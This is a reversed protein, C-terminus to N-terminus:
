DIIAKKCNPFPFVLEVGTQDSDANILVISTKIDTIRDGKPILRDLKPCNAYKGPYASTTGYLNGKQGKLIRITFRGKEDINARSSPNYKDANPDGDAMFEVATYEAIDSNPIKGDSVRVAGSVTITEATAPPVVILDDIVTGPGFQLEAADERNKAKPYFFAGFPTSATVKDDDNLLLVYNGAPIQKIEFSGDSETCDFPLAFSKESVQTPVLRMCVDKLPKGNTDFFKGRLANDIIFNINRETHSKAKIEFDPRDDPVEYGSRFGEIREPRIKYKGPPLDYIEYVGNKDTKVKITRGNGIIALARDSLSESQFYERGEVFTALTKTVRGSLRSRGTLKAINDLFMLDASVQDLGGSRSCISGIWRGDNQPKSPLYFLYERDISDESFYWGCSGGGGQMFTLQQGVKLNGKLSREVTLVANEPGIPDSTGDAVKEVSRLKLIVVNPTKAFEVDVTGGIACSCAIARGAFTGFLLFFIPLIRNM